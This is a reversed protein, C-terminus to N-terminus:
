ILHLGILPLMSSHLCDRYCHSCAATARPSSVTAPPPSQGAGNIISGVGPSGRCPSPRVPAASSSPTEERQEEMEWNRLYLLIFDSKHLLLLLICAKSGPSQFETFHPASFLNHCCCRLEITCLYHCFRSLTPPTVM